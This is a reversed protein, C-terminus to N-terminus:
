SDTLNIKRTRMPLLNQGDTRNKKRERLEVSEKDNGDVHVAPVGDGAVDVM